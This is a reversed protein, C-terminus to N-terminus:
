AVSIHRRGAMQNVALTICDTDTVRDLHDRWNVATMQCAKGITVRRKDVM